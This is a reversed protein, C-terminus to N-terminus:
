GEGERRGDNSGRVQVGSREGPGDTSIRGIEGDFSEQVLELRRVKELLTEILKRNSDILDAVLGITFATFGVVILVGGLVLSQLHGGGGDNFFFYLFRAVPILGVLFAGTGVFTFVKLPQYMTYSRVMTTISRVVFQPITKFLRSPRVEPNVGIPVSVVAMGDHGAQIVTEITYSFSTVINLKLAAARSMARFGSVADPVETGSLRRVVGSGLRQLLKKTWSFGAITDTQRDGIVVDARGELIPQVLKPIDAGVYQNDADTNVIVDAGLRLCTDLGTRFARALGRNKTHRVVHDAGASRAIDSTDDSSGDDVVLIEVRDVNQIQRPIDAITAPLSRAENYAPIQVILHM